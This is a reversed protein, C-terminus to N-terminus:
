TQQINIFLLATQDSLVDMLKDLMHLVVRSAMHQFIYSYFSLTLICATKYVLHFRQKLCLNSSLNM